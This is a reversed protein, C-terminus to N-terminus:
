SQSAVGRPIAPEDARAWRGGARPLPESGVDTFVDAVKTGLTTETEGDAPAGDLLEVVARGPTAYAGGLALLLVLGTREPLKAQDGLACALWGIGGVVAFAVVKPEPRAPALPDM